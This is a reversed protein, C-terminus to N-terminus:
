AEGRMIREIADAFHNRRNMNRLSNSVERVAPWQAQDTALNRAARERARKSDDSPAQQERNRHRPWKM